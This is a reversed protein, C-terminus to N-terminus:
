RSYLRLTRKFIPGQSIGSRRGTNGVRGGSGSGTGMGEKAGGPIGYTGEKSTKSPHEAIAPGMPRSDLSPAEPLKVLPPTEVPPAARPREEQPPPPEKLTQRQPKLPLTKIEQASPPPEVKKVQPQPKQLQFDLVKNKNSHGVFTSLFIVLVFILSHVLFSIQFARTQYNM